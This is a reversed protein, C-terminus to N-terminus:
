LKYTHFNVFNNILGDKNTRLKFDGCVPRIEAFVRSGFIELKPGKLIPYVTEVSLTDNVKLNNADSKDGNEIFIYHLTYM